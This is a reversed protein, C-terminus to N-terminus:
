FDLEWQKPDPSLQGYHSGPKSSSPRDSAPTSPLPFQVSDIKQPTSVAPQSAPTSPVPAQSSTIERSPAVVREDPNIGLDSTKDKKNNRKKERKRKNKMTKRKNQKSTESHVDGSQLDTQAESDQNTQPNVISLRTNNKESGQRLRETKDGQASETEPEIKMQDLPNLDNLDLSSEDLANGNDAIVPPSMILSEELAVSMRRLPENDQSKDGNSKTQEQDSECTLDIIEQDARIQEKTKTPFEAALTPSEPIEDPGDMADTFGIREQRLEQLSTHIRPDAGNIGQSDEVQVVPQVSASSDKSSRRKGTKRKKSSSEDTQDLSRKRTKKLLPVEKLTDDIEEGFTTEHQNGPSGAPAGVTDLYIRRVYELLGSIAADPMGASIATERLDTTFQVRASRSVPQVPTEFFEHTVVYQIIEEGKVPGVSAFIVDEEAEDELDDPEIDGNDNKLPKVPVENDTEVAENEAEVAENEAEVSKSATSNEDVVSGKDGNANPHNDMTPVSEEEDESAMDVVTISRRTAARTRPRTTPSKEANNSTAPSTLFYPSKLAHKKTESASTAVHEPVSTSCKESQCANNMPWDEDGLADFSAEESLIEDVIADFLPPFPKFKSFEESPPPLVVQINDTLAM